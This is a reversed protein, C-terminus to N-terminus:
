KAYIGQPDLNKNFCLVPLAFQVTDICHHLATEKLNPLLAAYTM